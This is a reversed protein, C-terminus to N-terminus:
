PPETSDHSVEALSTSRKSPVGDPPRIKFGGVAIVRRM